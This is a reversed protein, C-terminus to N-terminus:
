CRCSLPSPTLPLPNSLPLSPIPQYPEPHDLLSASLTTQLCCCRPYTHLAFTHPMPPVMIKNYDDHMKNYREGEEDAGFCAVAFAGLYDRHGINVFLCPCVLLNSVSERYWSM